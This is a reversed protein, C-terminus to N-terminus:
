EGDVAVREPSTPKSIHQNEVLRRMRDVQDALILPICAEHQTHLACEKCPRGNCHARIMLLFAEYLVGTYHIGKPAPGQFCDTGRGPNLPCDVCDGGNMTCYPSQIM